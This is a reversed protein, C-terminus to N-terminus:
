HERGAAIDGGTQSERDALREITGSYQHDDAKKISLPGFPGFQPHIVWAPV